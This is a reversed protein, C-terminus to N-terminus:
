GREHVVGLRLIRDCRLADQRELDRLRLNAVLNAPPVRALPERRVRQCPTREHVGNVADIQRVPGEVRLRCTGPARLRAVIVVRSLSIAVAAPSRLCALDLVDPPLRRRAADLVEEIIFRYGPRLADPDVQQLTDLRKRRSIEHGVVGRHERSEDDLMILHHQDIRRLARDVLHCLLESRHCCRATGPSVWRARSIKGSNAPRVKLCM